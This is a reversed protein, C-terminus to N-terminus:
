QSKLWDKTKKIEILSGWSKALGFDNVFFKGQPLYQKRQGVQTNEMQAKWIDNFTSDSKKPVIKWVGADGPALKDMWKLAIHGMTWRPNIELGPHIKLSGDLDRYIMLDIGCPCPWDGLWEKVASQLFRQLEKLFPFSWIKLEKDFGHEFDGLWHGRYKGNQTYFKTVGLLRRGQAAYLFSLNINTNDGWFPELILRKNQASIDKVWQKLSDSIGRSVDISKFHHGSVSYEAQLVLQDVGVKEYEEFSSLLDQENHVIKFNQLHDLSIHDPFKKLLLQAASSQFIKNLFLRWEIKSHTRNWQTEVIEKYKQVKVTTKNELFKVVQPTWAWPQAYILYRDPLKDENSIFEPYQFGHQKMWILFEASPAKNLLVLDDQSVIHFALTDLDKNVDLAKGQLKAGTNELEAGSNWWSLVPVKGRSKQYLWIEQIYEEDFGARRRGEIDFPSGKARIPNIDNRVFHSWSKWVSECQTFYKYWRIGGGLHGIEDEYVTQMLDSSAKDGLQAFLTQYHKSFDLNAQEFTMSMWAIYETPSKMKSIIKWFFDNLKLEGFGVGFTEMRTIYRSLHDQEETMTHAIMQRFGQPAEPFRLLALAMLELALLEHNALFHMVHGRALVDTELHVLNPFKHIGKVNTIELFKPRGPSLPVTKLPLFGSDDLSVTSTFKDELQTGFLIQEAAHKLDM